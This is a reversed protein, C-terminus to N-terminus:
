GAMLPLLRLLTERATILVAGLFAIAAPLGVYLLIMTTAIKTAFTIHLINIQPVARAIVGEAMTVAMLAMILPFALAMGVEFVQQSAYASAEALEPGVTFAGLPVLGYSQALAAFLVHHTDTLFFLLVLALHFMDGVPGSMVESAPNFSEAAAYGATRGILDGGFRVAHFFLDLFFGIALGLAFERALALVFALGNAQGMIDQDIAVTPLLVLTVALTMLGKTQMPAYGGGVVPAAMFIGGVRVFVLAGGAVMDSIAVLGAIPDM